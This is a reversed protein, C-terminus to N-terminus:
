LLYLHFILNQKTNDDQTVLINSEIQFYKVNNIVDHLIIPNTFLLKSYDL